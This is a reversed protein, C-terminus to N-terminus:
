MDRFTSLLNAKCATGWWPPQSMCSTRDQLITCARVRERRVVRRSAAQQDLYFLAGFIVMGLADIILTSTNGDAL